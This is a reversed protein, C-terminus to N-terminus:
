VGLARAGSTGPLLWLSERGSRTSQRPTLLESLRRGQVLRMQAKSLTLVDEDSLLSVSRELRPTTYVPTLVITLADALTEALDRQTIMAWRRAYEYLEDPLTLTVQTSM